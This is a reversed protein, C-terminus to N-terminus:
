RLYLSNDRDSEIGREFLQRSIQKVVVKGGMCVIGTPGIGVGPTDGVTFCVGTFFGPYGGGKM